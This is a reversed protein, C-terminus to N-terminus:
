RATTSAMVPPTADPSEAAITAAVLGALVLVTALAMRATSKGGFGQNAGEHALASMVERPM